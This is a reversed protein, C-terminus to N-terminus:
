GFFELQEVPPSSWQDHGASTLGTQKEFEDWAEALTQYCGGGGTYLDSKHRVCWFDGTFASYWRPDAHEADLVVVTRRKKPATTNAAIAVAKDCSPAHPPAADATIFEYSM